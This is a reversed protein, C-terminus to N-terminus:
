GTKRWAGRRTKSSILKELKRAYFVAIVKVTPVSGVISLL